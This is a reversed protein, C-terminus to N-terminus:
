PSYKVIGKQFGYMDIIKAIPYNISSNNGTKFERVFISTSIRIIEDKNHEYFSYLCHLSKHNFSSFGCEDKFIERFIKCFYQDYAPTLGFVGLMIKTSLTIHRNGNNNDLILESIKRYIELLNQIKSKDCLSSIEIDRSERDLNGIYIILDEYHKASKQLLSSSGRLMGWSALYFGLSLCSMEMNNIIEEGSRTKFYHYCYDFSTYRDTNNKSNNLYNTTCEEIDNVHYKM